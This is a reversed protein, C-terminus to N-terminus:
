GVQINPSPQIYVRAVQIAGSHLTLAIRGPDLTVVMGLSDISAADVCTLQFTAGFTVQHNGKDDSVM